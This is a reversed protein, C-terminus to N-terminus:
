KTGSYGGGSTWLLNHSKGRQTKTLRSSSKLTKVKCLKCIANWPQSGWVSISNQHIDYCIEDEQSESLTAVIINDRLSPIAIVDLYPHHPTCLQTPTPHLNPRGPISLSDSATWPSLADDDHILFPDFGLVEANRTMARYLSYHPLHIHRHEALGPLTIPSGAQDQLNLNGSATVVIYDSSVAVQSPDAGLITASTKATNEGAGDTACKSIPESKRESRKADDGEYGTLM